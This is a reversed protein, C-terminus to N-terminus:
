PTASSPPSEGLRRLSADCAQRVYDVDGRSRLRDNTREELPRMSHRVGGVIASPGAETRV